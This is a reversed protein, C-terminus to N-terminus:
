LAENHKSQEEEIAALRDQAEHIQRSLVKSTAQWAEFAKNRSALESKQHNVIRVLEGQLQSTDQLDAYLSDYLEKAKVACVGRHEDTSACAVLASVKGDLDKYNEPTKSKTAPNAQKIENYLAIAQTNLENKKSILDQCEKLLDSRAGKLTKATQLVVDRVFRGGSNGSSHAPARVSAGNQKPPADVTSTVITSLTTDSRTAVGFRAERAATAGQGTGAACAANAKLAQEDASLVVLEVSTAISSQTSAKTKIACSAAKKVDETDMATNDTPSNDLQIAEGKRQTPGRPPEPESVEQRGALETGARKMNESQHQDNQEISDLGIGNATAGEVHSSSAVAHGKVAHIEAPLSTDLLSAETPALKNKEREMEHAVVKDPNQPTCLDMEHSVVKYPNQPTCLNLVLPEFRPQKSCRDMLESNGARKQDNQTRGPCLAPIGDVSNRNIAPVVGATDNSNIALVVGATDNRAANANRANGVANFDFGAAILQKRRDASLLGNKELYRQQSEWHKQERTGRTGMKKDYEFQALRVEWPVM